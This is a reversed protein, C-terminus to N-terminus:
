LQRVQFQPNARSRGLVKVVRLLVAEVLAVSILAAVERGYLIWVLDNSSLFGFSTM